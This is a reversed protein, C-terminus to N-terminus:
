RQMNVPVYRSHKFAESLWLLLFNRTYLHSREKLFYLGLCCLGACSMPEFEWNNSDHFLASKSAFIVVCCCLVMWQWVEALANHCIFALCSVLSIGMRLHLCLIFYVKLIFVCSNTPWRTFVHDLFICPRQGTTNSPSSPSLSERSQPNPSPFCSREQQAWSSCCCFTIRSLFLLNHTPLREGLNMVKQEKM